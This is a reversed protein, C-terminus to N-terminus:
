ALKTLPLREMVVVWNSKDFCSSVLRCGPLSAVLAELEGAEFCHYYRQYVVAAKAHSVEWQAAQGPRHAGAKGAASATGVSPTATPPTSLRWDFVGAAEVANGRASTPSAITAKAASTLAAGARHFPVHWPVMYDAGRDGTVTPEPAKGAAASDQKGGEVSAGGQEDAQRAMGTQPVAAADAAHSASIPLPPAAAPSPQSSPHQQIRTWKDLTKGTDEQEVAWVTVQLLLTM